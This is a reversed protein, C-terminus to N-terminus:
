GSGAIWRGADAWCARMPDRETLPVYRGIGLAMANLREENRSLATNLDDSATNLRQAIPALAEFGLPRTAADAM